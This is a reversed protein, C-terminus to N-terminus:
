KLKGCFKNSMYCHDRKTEYEMEWILMVYLVKGSSRKGGMGEEWGGIEQPCYLLKLIHTVWLAFVDDM